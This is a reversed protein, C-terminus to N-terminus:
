DICRGPWAPPTPASGLGGPCPPTPSPTASADIEMRAGGLGPPPLMGGRNEVKCRRDQLDPYFPDIRNVILHDPRAFVADARRRPRRRRGRRHDAGAPRDPAAVLDRGGPGHRSSGSRRDVVKFVIRRQPTVAEARTSAHRGWERRAPSVFERGRLRAKALRLQIQALEKRHKAFEVELGAAEAEM